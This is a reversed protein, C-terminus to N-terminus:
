KSCAEKELEIEVNRVLEPTILYAVNEQIKKNGKKSIM